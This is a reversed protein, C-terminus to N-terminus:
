SHKGRKPQYDPRHSLRVGADTMKRAVHHPIMVHNDDSVEHESNLLRRGDSDEGEEKQVAEVDLVEYPHVTDDDKVAEEATGENEGDRM